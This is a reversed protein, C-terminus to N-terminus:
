PADVRRALGTYGAVALTVLLWGVVTGASSVWACVAGWPTSADPRWYDAQHVNIIPVVTNFAYGLPNFCPYSTQCMLASPAPHIGTATGPVPVIAGHHNLTILTVALVLVYLGGLLILAEWTRYGYGITIDLLWNFLKRYWKLHGLKRQDRRQNIAVERAATDDGAQQYMKLLQEYPGSAFAPRDPDPSAAQATGTTADPGTATAAGKGRGRRRTEGKNSGRIWDLRQGVGAKNDARITTYTFGDLRLDPPWYGNQKFRPGTWDDDLEAASGGELNVQGLVPKGPRWALKRTIQIGEANLATKGPKAALDAGTLYLSGGVQAGPLSVTGAATFTHQDGASDLLVDGGVKITDATLATGDKGARTLQAGRMNLQGTIDAGALRVTGAATFTGQDGASDLFVSGGVKMGDATLADGDNGARTLQAGTMNLQGTIDAGALRVAGAATFTRQGPVSDLSVGAAKLGYARLADGDKNHGNLKAGHCELQGIVAGSLLVAGAATFGEDLFVDAAKLGDAWLADGDKNSGNLKAGHCELQGTIDAGVLRVAGAATFGQDLLVNAGAKMKSGFLAYRDRDRGNLKAGSFNLQGTIDAGYLRVAGAATFGGDFLVDAGGKMYDAVLANGGSDHGNLKAGSFNLTGTIDAGYLRVAGAATHAENLFVGGGTRMLDATLANLQAGNCNLPGSFNAGLLRLPGVLTSHSLDLERATLMEGTLGGPLQCGTLTVRSAAAHDLVVPGDNDLYCSDLHLPCRLTASELDLKGSILVGQLRVGKAHVQWQEAVLLHRLVAASISRDVGWARMSELEFPGERRVLEGTKAADLM